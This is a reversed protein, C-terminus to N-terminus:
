LRNSILAPRAVRRWHNIEERTKEGPDGQPLYVLRVDFLPVLLKAVEHMEPWAGQPETPGPGDWMFDIAKVGARQLKVIQRSSMKKGFTCVADPGTKVADVPGEVIAVRPYQKATDLNLLVDGSGATGHAKPPNLCKVYRELPLDEAAWMARAQFYVLRGDELVPFLLRNSYRGASCWRLKFAIADAVAIGRKELYPLTGMVEHSHDPYAIERAEGDFRLPANLEGLGYDVFAYKESELIQKTVDPYPKNELLAILRILGGHAKDSTGQCVWCHYAKTSANVALKRKGCLPCDLLFEHDGVPVEGRERLYADLDFSAVAARLDGIM